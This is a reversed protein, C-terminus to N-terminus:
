RGDELWLKMGCGDCEFSTCGESRWDSERGLLILKEACEECELIISKSCAVFREPIVESIRQM